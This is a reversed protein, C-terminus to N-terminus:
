NEGSKPLSYTVTLTPRRKPDPYAPGNLAARYYRDKDLLKVTSSSSSYMSGYMQQMLMYSYYNNYYSGYGGYGYGGYGYGYGGYGYGGYGGYMNNYYSSYMMMNYYESMEDQEAASTTTTQTENAMILFWVDYNSIKDLEKLKLISQTHYTIDPAYVLLSRNVDGQDESSDSSDTLSAFSLQGEDNRIRCTPSLIQPYRIMERYDAPFDFPLSLSARNIAAEQPNGHRSIDEILKNRIETASLVPKLGGGGEVYVYEAASGSLERTEHSSVNLCYQPLDSSANYILSDVDYFKDPSFYFMFSTDVTRGDYEATFALEAFNGLIYGYSANYKLQLSFINIRGGESVPNDTEFCIGPFKKTYSEMDKTDEITMSLYKEGYERTLFFGLTDESGNFVPVGQTIRRTGHKLKTNIDYTDELPETLEYVNINQHMYRDEDRAVSITDQSMTIHFYRLRANQGFDLSDYMPVLTIASSRTTLGFQGDRIAGFTIRTQSYGSLSDAPVMRIEELPFEAVFTDFQQDTALFDSGLNYNVNICSALSATVAAGLVIRKLFSLNM